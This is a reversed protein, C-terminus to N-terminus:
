VLGHWYEPDFVECQDHAAKLRWSDKIRNRGGNQSTISSWTANQTSLFVILVTMYRLLTPTLGSVYNASHASWPPSVNSRGCVYRGNESQSCRIVSYDSTDYHKRYSLGSNYREWVCHMHRQANVSLRCHNFRHSCSGNDNDFAGLIYTCELRKVGCPFSATWTDTCQLGM